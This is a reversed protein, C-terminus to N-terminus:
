SITYNMLYKLKEKMDKINVSLIARTTDDLEDPIIFQEETIDEFLGVSKLKNRRDELKENEEKLEANNSFPQVKRSILRKGLSLELEESLKAYELHKSQILQSLEKSYNKVTDQKISKYKRITNSHYRINREKKDDFKIM